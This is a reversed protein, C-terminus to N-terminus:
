RVCSVVGLYVSTTAVLDDPPSRSLVVMGTTSLVRKAKGGGGGRSLRSRLGSGFKVTNLIGRSSIRFSILPLGNKM